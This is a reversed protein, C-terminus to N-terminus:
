PVKPYRSPDDTDCSYAHVRQPHLIQRDFSGYGHGDIPQEAGAKGPQNKVSVVINGDVARAAQHSVGARLREHDRSMPVSTGDSMVRWRM